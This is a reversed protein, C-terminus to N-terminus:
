HFYKNLIDDRVQALIEQKKYIGVGGVTLFTPPDKFSSNMIIKCFAYYTFGKAEKNRKTKDSPDEKEAQDSFSAFSDLCFLGQRKKL